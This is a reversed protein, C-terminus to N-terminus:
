EEACLKDFTKLCDEMSNCEVTVDMRNKIWPMLKEFPIVGDGLALHADRDGHNDHIHLHRIYPSQVELWEQLPIDSYCNAHGVDLCIGFAPHVINEAIEAIPQPFPDLVNEMLIQIDSPKDELFCRYFDIMREAWGELYYVSPVFGTHYVIKKAGLARAAEYAQEYRTRTAEAVLSDFAMPNLDLFPGHIMLERCELNELRKEYEQLMQPLIDLNESVSFEISEVGGGTMKLLAKMESDELLHSFYIM